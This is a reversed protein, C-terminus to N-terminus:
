DSPPVQAAPEAPCANNGCARHSHMNRAPCASLSIRLIRSRRCGPLPLERYLLRTGSAPSAESLCFPPVFTSSDQVSFSPWRLGCPSQSPQENRLLLVDPRIEKQQLNTYKGTNQLSSHPGRYSRCDPDHGTRVTWPVYRGRVTHPLPASPIKGPPPASSRGYAQCWVAPVDSCATDARDRCTKPDRPCPM